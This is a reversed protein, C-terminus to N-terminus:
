LFMFLFSVVGSRLQVNRLMQPDILVSQGREVRRREWGLFLTLLVGGALMMWIVPSLGLWEPAEPKPQVLGWTGSKLIGLVILGLGGASLATGVLDLRVGEEPPTD